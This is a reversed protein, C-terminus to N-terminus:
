PVLVAEIRARDHEAVEIFRMGVDHLAPGGAPLDEVWVVEAIVTASGGEAFLLELELKQGARYADDSYARLGGLSLDTVKRPLARALLGLPRVAISAQARPFRRRDIAPSSV